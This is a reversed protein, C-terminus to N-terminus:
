SSTSPRFRVGPLYRSVFEGALAQLEENELEQDFRNPFSTLEISVQQPQPPDFSLPMNSSSLLDSGVESSSHPSTPSPCRAQFPPLLPLRLKTM